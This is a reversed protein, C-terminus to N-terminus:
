EPKARKKYEEIQNEYFQKQFALEQDKQTILLELTGIYAGLRVIQKDAETLM